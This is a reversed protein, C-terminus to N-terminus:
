NFPFVHHSPVKCIVRLDGSAPSVLQISVQPPAPNSMSSKTDGSAPSVLQISVESDELKVKVAPSTGV